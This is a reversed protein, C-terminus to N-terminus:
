FVSLVAADLHKKPMCNKLTFSHITYRYGDGSGEGGWKSYKIYKSFFIQTGQLSYKHVKNRLM